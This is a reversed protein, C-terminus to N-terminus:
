GCKKDEEKKDKRLASVIDNLTCIILWGLFLILLPEGILHAIEKM